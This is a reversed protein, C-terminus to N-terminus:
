IEEGDDFCVREMKCPGFHKKPELCGFVFGGRDRYEFGCIGGALKVARHKARMERAAEKIPDVRMEPYGIEVSKDYFVKEVWGELDIGQSQCFLDMYIYADAIERALKVRLAGIKEKNGKIGDRFRNLKKLVNAAEGIEGVMAVMWDSGSWDSLKHNFGKSSESREKNRKSFEKNM